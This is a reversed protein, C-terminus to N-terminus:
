VVAGEGAPEQIPAVIIETRPVDRVSTYHKTVSLSVVQSDDVYIVGTLADLIGRALKDADPRTIHPQTRDRLYKPRPLHFHAVIGVPGTSPGRRAATIARQAEVAVTRRWGKLKPNDSDVRAGIGGGKEPRRTYTFARASGQPQATGIVTFTLATMGRAEPAPVQKVAQCRQCVIFLPLTTSKSM